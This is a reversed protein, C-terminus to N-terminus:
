SSGFQSTTQSEAALISATAVSCGDAACAARTFINSPGPGALTMRRGCDRSRVVSSVCYKTSPEPNYVGPGPTMSPLCRKFIRVDCPRTCCSLMAMGEPCVTLETSPGTLEHCNSASWPRKCSCISGAVGGSNIMLTSVCRLRSVSGVMTCNDGNRTSFAPPSTPNIASAKPESACGSFTCASDSESTLKLSKSALM